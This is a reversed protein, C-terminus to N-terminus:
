WTVTLFRSNKAVYDTMKHEGAISPYNPRM